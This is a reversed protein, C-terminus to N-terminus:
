WESSRRERKWRARKAIRRLEGKLFDEYMILYKKILSWFRGESMLRFDEEDKLERSVYHGLYLIYKGNERKIEVPTGNFLEWYILGKADNMGRIKFIVNAKVGDM